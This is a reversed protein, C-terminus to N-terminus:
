TEKDDPKKEEMTCNGIEMWKDMVIDRAAIAQLMTEDYGMDDTIVVPIRIWGVPENPYDEKSYVSKGEIYPPIRMFPLEIYKLHPRKMTMREAIKAIAKM